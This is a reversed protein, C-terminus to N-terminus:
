KIVDYASIDDSGDEFVYPGTNELAHEGLREMLQQVYLSRPEVHKGFSDFLGQVRPKFDGEQRTGVHGISWNQATPPQQVTLDGETNWVVYNAGSWGHGTGYYARDQIAIPGKINDYLGGVSWRHHAESRNYNQKSVGLLFVNPGRVQNNVYFAHRATESTLRQFLNLEGSVNFAYRREGDLLSVMDLNIGDQVTVWKASRGVAVASRAFHLATFDRIWANKVKDFTIFSSAHEEDAYYDKGSLRKKVNKNFESVGRINEVGVQEIREPDTYKIMSGGGWRSEIANVIPADVTILNGEMGIIVRDFDLNFPEWQKLGSPNKPDPKIQDMNIEHIFDKNGVRTVLIKDGVKLGETSQVHFSHAGVPVYNDTISRKSNELTTAASTGFVKILDRKDKGVAILLTGDEDQGEGRLVVGSSIISLSGQIEYTGKKLLVAGKFGSEDPELSSVHDIAAQIRATADGEAPEVIEKAPVDPIKVGGSMYGVNSFDPIQNGKYDPVYVLKGGDSLYIPKAQSSDLQPEIVTFFVSDYMEAYGPVSLIMRIEYRGTKELTRDFVLKDGDNTQLKRKPLQTVVSGNEHIVSVSLDGGLDSKVKLTPFADGTFVIAPTGIESKMRAHEPIVNLVSGSLLKLPVVQSSNEKQGVSNVSDTGDPENDKGAVSACGWGFLLILCLIILRKM